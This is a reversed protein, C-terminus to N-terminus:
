DVWFRLDGLFRSQFGWGEKRGLVALGCDPHSCHM